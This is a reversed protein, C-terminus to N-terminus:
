QSDRIKRWKVVNRNHEALTKAFAHGGTGDAVFYFADTEAPNLVAELAARGPNAIPGPPLGAIQYTNYPHDLKWDQRTLAREMAVKGETLAYAVTPDSQLRMGRRLRNIFVGAVKAREGAVGTEKEVISALTVAEQPSSLPLDPARAAWLEALTKDMVAQMQAILAPRAIGREYHYTEPLLTGEAPVTEIEGELAPAQQLLAVIEVSTLGEPITVFRDVTEGEVLKELVAQPSLAPPFAFEGAKLRGHQGSVRAALAFLRPHEIIGEDALRNAIARVGSGQPVVVTVESDLPGPTTFYTWGFYGVGGAALGVLLIAWILTVEIRRVIRQGRTRGRLDLAEEPADYPDDRSSDPSNPDPSGKSANM